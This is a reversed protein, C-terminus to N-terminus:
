PGGRFRVYRLPYRPNLDWGRRWVKRKRLFERGHVTGELGREVGDLIGLLVHSKQDLGDGFGFALDLGVETLGRLGLRVAPHLSQSDHLEFEVLQLLM